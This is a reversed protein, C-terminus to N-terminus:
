PCWVGESTSLAVVRSLLPPPAPAGLVRVAVVGQEIQQKPNSTPAALNSSAVERVRVTRAVV